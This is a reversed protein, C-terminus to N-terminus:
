NNFKRNNEDQPKKPTYNKTYETRTNMEDVLRQIQREEYTKSIM